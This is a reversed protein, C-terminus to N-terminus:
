CHYQTNLASCSKWQYLIMSGDACSHSNKATLIDYIFLKFM